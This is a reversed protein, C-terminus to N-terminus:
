GYRLALVVHGVLLVILAVSLPLHLWLWNYLWFHLRAQVNLQRRRECLTQLQDVVGLLEVPVRQRLDDFYGGNRQQTGLVGTPTRGTALFPEIDGALAQQLSPSPVPRPLDRAPQPTRGIPPGVRRPAGVIAEYQDGGAAIAASRQEAVKVDGGCAITVLRRAEAAYQRGVNEIQSHITEAPVKEILVRPVINQMALGWVGSAIVLAFAVVLITSLTGGLSFGSHLVVLPVTLLGLWIHAKMWTQASLTWRATRFLKTRKAALLMEFAFIAAALTGMALGPWTGGGPWRGTQGAWAAWWAAAALTIGATAGLWPGHQKWFNRPGILVDSERCPSLFHYLADPRGPL